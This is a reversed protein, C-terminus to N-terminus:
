PAASVRGRRRAPARRDGLLARLTALNRADLPDHAVATGGDRAKPTEILMPLRRLRADTVLARFGELGIAGEGIHTHRDVRSGLPMRSDNLHVVCLRDLGVLRDFADLTAKVGAASRIDYGAALLHCSDLCVGVRPHGGVGDLMARLQEFRWGLTSGQGATHELAIRTRGRRRPRLVEVLAQSVRELAEAEPAGTSAGPHLVVAALGLREARDVEDGLAAISQARLADGTAALNILYSAHSVVPEIGTEAVRARFARVEEEPIERARWQGVSKTFIQLADCAHLAARDVARPLGGAISM